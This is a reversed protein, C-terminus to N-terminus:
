GDTKKTYYLRVEQTNTDRVYINDGKKAEKLAAGITCFPYEISGRLGTADSGTLSCVLLAVGSLNITELPYAQGVVPQGIRKTPVLEGMVKEPWRLVHTKLLMLTAVVTGDWGTEPDVPTGAVYMAFNFRPCDAKCFTWEYSGRLWAGDSLQLELTEGAHVPQDDLHHRRGGEVPRMELPGSM